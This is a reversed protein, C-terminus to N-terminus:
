NFAFAWILFLVPLLLYGCLLISGRTKIENDDLQNVDHKIDPNKVLHKNKTLLISGGIAYAMYLVVIIMNLNADIFVVYALAASFLSFGLYFFGFHLRYLRVHYYQRIKEKIVRKSECFLLMSYILSGIAISCYLVFSAFTFINM